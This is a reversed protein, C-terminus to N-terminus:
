GCLNLNLAESWWEGGATGGIPGEAGGHLLSASREKGEGAAKQRKKEEKRRKSLEKAAETMADAIASPKDAAFKTVQGDKALIELRGEEEAYTWRRLEKYRFTDLTAAGASDEVVLAELEVHLRVDQDSLKAEFSQPQFRAAMEGMELEFPADGGGRALAPAEAPLELEFPAPAAPAPPSGSGEAAGLPPPPLAPEEPDM